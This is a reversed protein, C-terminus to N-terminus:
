LLSKKNSTVTVVLDPAIEIKLMLHVLVEVRLKRPGHQYELPLNGIACSRSRDSATVRPPPAVETWRAMGDSDILGLASGKIEGTQSDEASSFLRSSSQWATL